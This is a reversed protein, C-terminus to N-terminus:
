LSGTGGSITGSNFYIHNAGGGLWWLNTAVNQLVNAFGLFINPGNTTTTSPIVLPSFNNFSNGCFNTGTCGNNFFVIASTNTSYFDLGDGVVNATAGGGAPVASANEIIADNGNHSWGDRFVRFGRYFVTVSDDVMLDRQQTVSSARALTHSQNDTMWVTGTGQFFYADDLGQAFCHQVVNNSGSVNSFHFGDYGYDARCDNLWFSGFGDLAVSNTAVASAPIGSEADLWVGQITLNTGTALVHHGAASLATNTVLLLHTIQNIGGQGFVICNIPFNLAFSYSGTNYAMNTFVGAGFVVCPTPSNVLAAIANSGTGFPLSPDGLMATGDNGNTAVYAPKLISVSTVMGAAALPGVLGAITNTLVGNGGATITSGASMSGGVTLNNGFGIASTENNTVLGTAAANAPTLMLNTMGTANDLEYWQNSVTFLEIVDILNSGILHHSSYADKVNLVIDTEALIYGDWNITSSGSDNLLTRNQQIITGSADESGIFNLIYHGNLNATGNLNVPGGITLGNGIDNSAAGSVVSFSGLVTLNTTTFASNTAVATLGAGGGTGLPSGGVNVTSGAPLNITTPANTGGANTDTISVMNGPGHETVVSPQKTAFLLMQGTVPGNTDVAAATIAFVTAPTQGTINTSWPGFQNAVNSYINVAGTLANSLTLSNTVILGGGNTAMLNAWLTFSTSTINSAGFTQVKLLDQAFAVPVLTFVIALSLLQKRM